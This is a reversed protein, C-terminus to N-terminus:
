TLLARHAKLAVYADNAAYLIQAETLQRNSWNSTGIKKSKILRMGFFHTIASKAGVDGRHGPIRIAKALDTVNTLTVGFKHWLDRRDNGLGMGVKLINHSELIAKLGEPFNNAGVQFLYAHTDTSLQILHPGTSEEGKRFTPKSETDFGLVDAQILVALASSVNQGQEFLTIQKLPLGPFVPLQEPQSPHM